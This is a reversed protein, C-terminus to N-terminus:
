ASGQQVLEEIPDGNEYRELLKDADFVVGIPNREFAGSQMWGKLEAESAFNDVQLEVGMGDPDKYYFSTTPGHNISIGPVIGEARLRKYTQMLDGFTAYAYAFHDTGVAGPPAQESNAANIFALRHHEDDYTVFCIMPNEHVVEVGLVTKYWAITQEFHKSRLVIHAFRVPRRVEDTPLPTAM